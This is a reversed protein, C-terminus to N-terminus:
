GLEPFSRTAPEQLFSLLGELDLFAQFMRIIQDNDVEWICQITSNHRRISCHNMIRKQQSGLCAVLLFKWERVWVDPSRLMVCSFGGNLIMYTLVLRESFFPLSLFLPVVEFLIVFDLLNNVGQKQLCCNSIHRIGLYFFHEATELTGIVLISASNMYLGM